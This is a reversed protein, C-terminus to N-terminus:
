GKGIGELPRRPPLTGGVVAVAATEGWWLSNLVSGSFEGEHSGRKPNPVKDRQPLAAMM